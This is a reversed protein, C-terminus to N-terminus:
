NEGTREAEKLLIELRDVASWDDADQFLYADYDFHDIVQQIIRYPGVNQMMTFLTVGPFQKVIDVPPEPSNDDVVVVADLPRTQNVLSELCQCLWEECKYHLIVAM